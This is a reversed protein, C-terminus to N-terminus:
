SACEEPERYHEGYHRRREADLKRLDEELQKRAQDLERWTEAAAEDREDRDSQVRFWSEFTGGPIGNGTPARGRLHDGDVPTERCDLIFDCKLTVKITSGRLTSTGALLEDDLPFVAVCGHELRPPRTDDYLVTPTFEVDRGNMNYREVIFTHRNIGTAEGGDLLKRDFYVRLEGNMGKPDSIESLRLTGGHRWNYHVIHTLQAPANIYHRGLRDIQQEGISFHDGDRAPTVLALPVRGGCRCQVTLCAGAPEDVDSCTDCVLKEPDIDRPLTLPWCDQDDPKLHCAGLDACERVRSAELRHPDCQDEAHLAPVREIQEEHYCVYVLFRAPEGHTAIQEAVGPPEWVKVVTPTKLVIERGYCDIAIGPSVIVYRDRCNPAIHPTVDLGCVIGWGHFLRNHLRHRNLFYAQEDRFDRAALFKGTFYRNREFAIESDPPACCAEAPRQDCPEPVHRHQGAQQTHRDPMM